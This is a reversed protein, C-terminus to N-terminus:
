KKFNKKLNLFRNRKTWRINKKEWSAIPLFVVSSTIYMYIYAYYYQMISYEYIYIYMTKSLHIISVYCLVDYRRKWTIGIIFNYAGMLLNIAAISSIIRLINPRFYASILVHWYEFVHLRFWAMIRFYETSIM